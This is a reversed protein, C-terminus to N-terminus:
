GCEPAAPPENEAVRVEACFDYCISSAFVCECPALKSWGQLRLRRAPRRGHSGQRMCSSYQELTGTQIREKRRRQRSVREPSSSVLPRLRSRNLVIAETRAGHGSGCGNRDSSPQAGGSSSEDCTTTRKHWPVKLGWGRPRKTAAVSRARRGRLGAELSASWTPSSPGPMTTTRWGKPWVPPSISM